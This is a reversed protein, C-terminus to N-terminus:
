NVFDECGGGGKWWQYDMWMSPALCNPSLLQPLPSQSGPKLHHSLCTFSLLSISGLPFTPCLHSSPSPLWFQNVLTLSVPFDSQCHFLSFSNPHSLASSLLQIFPRCLVEPPNSLSQLLLAKHCVQSQRPLSPSPLSNMQPLSVTCYPSAPSSPRSLPPLSETLPFHLHALFSPIQFALLFPYPQPTCWCHCTLVPVNYHPPVSDILSPFSFCFLTYRNYCTNRQNMSEMTLLYCQFGSAFHTHTHAHIDWM